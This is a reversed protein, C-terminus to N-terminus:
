RIANFAVVGHSHAPGGIEGAVIEKRKRISMIDLITRSAMGGPVERIGRRDTRGAMHLIERVRDTRVMRSGPEGSIAGRAMGGSGAPGSREIVIDRVEGQVTCMGGRGADLAMRISVRACRRGAAGAVYRIVVVRGVRVVGSGSERGITSRAM